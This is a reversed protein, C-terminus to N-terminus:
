KINDGLHIAIGRVPNELQEKPYGRKLFYRKTLEIEKETVGVEIAGMIGAHKLFLKILSVAPTYGYVGAFGSKKLEPLSEVLKKVLQIAERTNKPNVHIELIKAGNEFVQKRGDLSFGGENPSKVVMKVGILESKGIAIRLAPKMKGVFRRVMGGFSNAKLNASITRTRIKVIPERKAM